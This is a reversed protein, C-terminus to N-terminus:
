AKLELGKITEHVVQKKDFYAKMYERGAIGMNKRTEESQCLFLNMKEELSKENGVKCLYGNVGEKVAEKCGPIDTTILSRGTAAAELLVNSMGEHYSPLVICHAMEYYPRPDKQFGHFRVIGEKELNMVTDKYEDEFFGVLDFVIQEGYKRKLNRASMFLEDVGKEKMIRGVFLFHIGNKETPYPKLQFYGLNVGAGSLVIERSQLCIKRKLFEYANAKNEFFVKRANKIAIKYMITVVSAIPEKQFATGLGQVNVCYPLGMVRCALGAYINPKISYTVVLDPKEKKLIKRYTLFLKTDTIPNIGRRDVETEICKCGIKQFNDEQGVFPTSIVIQYERKLTEILERRFQWLMYSHNTIILIKKM